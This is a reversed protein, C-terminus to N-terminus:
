QGEKQNWMHLNDQEDIMEDALINSMTTASAEQEVEMEFMIDTLINHMHCHFYFGIISITLLIIAPIIEISDTDLGGVVGLMLFILGGAAGLAYIDLKRVFSYSYQKM